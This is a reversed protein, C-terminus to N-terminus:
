STKLEGQMGTETRGWQIKEAIRLGQSDNGGHYLNLFKLGNWESLFSIPVEGIRKSIM